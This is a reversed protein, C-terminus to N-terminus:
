GKRFRVETSPTNERVAKDLPLLVDIMRSAVAKTFDPDEDPNNSAAVALVLLNRISEVGEAVGEVEAGTAVSDFLRRIFQVQKPSAASTTMLILSCVSDVALLEVLLIERSRPLGSFNM